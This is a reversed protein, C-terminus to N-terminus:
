SNEGDEATSEDGFREAAGAALTRAGYRERVTGLLGEPVYLVFLV